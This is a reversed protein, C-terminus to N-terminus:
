VQLGLVKPRQPLCIVLDLSRSWGPWCPSVRDRSFVYFKAPCKVYLHCMGITGAVQSASAPSDRSGLLHLNYHALIVGSCELRTVSHSKTEFFLSFLFLHPAQQFLAWAIVTWPLGCPIGYTHPNISQLQACHLGPCALFLAM